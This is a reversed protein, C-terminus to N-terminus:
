LIFNDEELATVSEILVSASAFTLVLGDVTQSALADAETVMGDGSTDLDDFDTVDTIGSVDLRERVPDFDVITDDDFGDAIVFVDTGNDGRLTDNGMGGSLTDPGAGGRLDDDGASGILMDQGGSGDIFAIDTLTVGSFDFLTQGQGGVISVNAFGNGSITEVNEVSELGIVTNNRLAQITDNDAGGDVVDRGTSQGDFLILDDGLGGEVTDNANVGELTDNGDGGVLSDFGGNGQINDGGASGIITDAGSQGSISSIGNLTVASFDFSNAASTGVIRINTFGQSDIVEVDRISSLGLTLNNRSAQLVDTGDGGDIHDFGLGNSIQITDDGAGGNVTDDSAGGNLSDNGSGGNLTDFGDEGLLTDDGRSGFLLDRGGDARILDNGSLGVITDRGADGDIITGVSTGLLGGAMLGDVTITVMATDSGGRGDELTYTFSETVSDTPALGDFAPDYILLFSGDAELTLLSGNTLTVESGVDAAQGNVATVSLMDGDADSDAGNGNDALVTGVVDEVTVDSVFSDDEAVPSTNVSAGFVVYAENSQTGIIVDDAGDGNVDGAGSVDRGLRNLSGVGNLVFGNEGDLGSLEIQSVGPGGSMGFVVYAQGSNSGNPDALFATVILDDIGDDNVDGANSVATGAQDGAAVGNLVFGNSGDLESLFVSSMGPGGSVGFVVYAEGSGGGNPDANPAGILLDDLGDGNVDGAGSVSRGATDSAEIGNLAFGDVGDLSLLEISSSGFGGSEGFVVYAQGRDEGMINAANDNGLVVDAAPAGVIVDDVGDGNVDGAGSVAWGAQGDSVGGNLIIGNTGDLSSLDVTGTGPGGSSGFVVYASGASSGIILDGIMDGNVDGANSVSFGSRDDENIGSLIFGNSGDLTSLDVNATGPGGSIGFVVYTEGTNDAPGNAFIATTVLDDIGDGNVDGAGSVATGSLDALDIGTLIFGNTGDLTSLDFGATGFGGSQGFVVYTEGTGTEDSDALRAGIIVDDIGDGNIDGAGSVSRGAEDDADIGNLVFGNTGDLTSLDITTMAFGMNLTIHIAHHNASPARMTADAFRGMGQLDTTTTDYKRHKGRM